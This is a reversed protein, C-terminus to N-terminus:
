RLPSFLSAQVLQLSAWWPLKGDLASLLNAADEETAAYLCCNVRSPAKQISLLARADECSADAYRVRKKNNLTEDRRRRLWDLQVRCASRVSGFRLPRNECHEGNKRTWCGDMM